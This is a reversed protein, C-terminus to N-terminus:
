KIPLIIVVFATWVVWTVRNLFSAKATFTLLAVAALYAFDSIFPISGIRILNRIYLQQPQVYM